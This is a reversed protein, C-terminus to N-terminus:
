VGLWAKDLSLTRVEIVAEGAPWSTADYSLRVWGLRDDMAELRELYALVDLYGGQVRLEVSHAFLLPEPTGGAAEGNGSGSTGSDAYVPEPTKLEMAQLTLNDQAALIERLLAVMARPAILQGATEAVQQDLQDLRSQRQELRQRLEESPDQALIQELEQQRTLLDTQRTEALVRRSELNRIEQSVPGLAFEWGAFLVVVLGTVLLLVRERAPRDNFWDGLRALGSQRADSM